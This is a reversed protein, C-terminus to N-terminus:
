VHKGGAGGAWEDGGAGGADPLEVRSVDLVADAQSFKGDGVVGGGGCGACEGAETQGEGAQEDFRDAAQMKPNNM